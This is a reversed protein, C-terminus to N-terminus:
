SSVPTGETARRRRPRAALQGLVDGLPPPRLKEVITALGLLMAMPDIPAPAAPVSAAPTSAAPAPRPAQRTALHEALMLLLRDTREQAALLL